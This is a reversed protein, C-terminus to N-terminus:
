IQTKNKLFQALLCDIERNKADMTQMKLQLKRASDGRMEAAAPPWYNGGLEPTFTSTGLARFPTHLLSGSTGLVRSPSSQLPHSQDRQLSHRFPNQGNVSDNKPLQMNASSLDRPSAPTAFLVSTDISTDRRSVNLASGTHEGARDATPFAAHAIASLEHPAPSEVINMVPSAASPMMNSKPHMFLPQPSVALGSDSLKPIFERSSAIKGADKDSQIKATTSIETKLTHITHCFNSDHHPMAGVTRDSVAHPHPRPEFSTDVISQVRTVSKEVERQLRGIAHLESVCDSFDDPVPLQFRIFHQPTGSSSNRPPSPGLGQENDDFTGVVPKDTSRNLM